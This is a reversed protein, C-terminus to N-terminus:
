YIGWERLQKAVQRNEDNCIITITNDKTAKESECRKVAVKRTTANVKKPDIMM